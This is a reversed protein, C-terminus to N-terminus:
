YDYGRRANVEALTGIDHMLVNIRAIEAIAQLESEPCIGFTDSYIKNIKAQGDSSVSMKCLRSNELIIALRFADM